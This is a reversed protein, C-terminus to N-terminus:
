RAGAWRGPSRANRQTWRMDNAAMQEDNQAAGEVVVKARQGHRRIADALCHAEQIALDRSWFPTTMREDMRVSWGHTEQVVSFIIMADCRVKGAKSVPTGGRRVIWARGDGRRGLRWRVREDADVPAGLGPLRRAPRKTPRRRTGLASVRRAGHDILPLRRRRNRFKWWRVRNQATPPSAPAGSRPWEGVLVSKALSRHAM